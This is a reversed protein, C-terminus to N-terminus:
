ADEWSIEKMDDNIRRFQRYGLLDQEAFILNGQHETFVVIFERLKRMLAHNFFYTTGDEHVIQVGRYFIEECWIRAEDKTLSKEHAEAKEFAWKMQVSM